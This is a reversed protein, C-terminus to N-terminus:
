RIFKIVIDAKLPKINGKAERRLLTSLYTNLTKITDQISDYTVTKNIKLDLVEVKISPKNSKTRNLAIEKLKAKTDKSHTKGFFSSNSGRRNESMSERVEESQRRGLAKQRM